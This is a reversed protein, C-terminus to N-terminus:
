IKSKTFKKVGISKKVFNKKGSTNRGSGNILEKEKPTEFSDLYEGTKIWVFIGIAIIFTLYIIEYIGSFM